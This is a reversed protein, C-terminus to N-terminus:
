PTASRGPELRRLLPALVTTAILLVLVSGLNRAWSEDVDEVLEALPLVAGFADIV